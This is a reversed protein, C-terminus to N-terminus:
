AADAASKQRAQWEAALEAVTASRGSAMEGLARAVFARPIRYNAQTGSGCDLAPLRRSQCMRRVTERSVRFAKATEEVTLFGTVQEETPPAQIQSLASRVLQVVAESRQDLM